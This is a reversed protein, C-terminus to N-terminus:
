TTLQQTTLNIPAMQNAVGMGMAAAQKNQRHKM